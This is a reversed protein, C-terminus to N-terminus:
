NTGHTAGSPKSNMGAPMKDSYNMKANIIVFLESVSIGNLSGPMWDDAIYTMGTTKLVASSKQRSSQAIQKDIQNKFRSERKGSM